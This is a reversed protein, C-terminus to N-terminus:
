ASVRWRRSFLKEIAIQFGSNLYEGQGSASGGIRSRSAFDRITDV